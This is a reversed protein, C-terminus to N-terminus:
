AANRQLCSLVSKRQFPKLVFDVAGMSLAEMLLTSQSPAATARIVTEPKSRRIRRIAV